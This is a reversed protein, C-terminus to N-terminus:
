CLALVHRWCMFFKETFKLVVGLGGRRHGGDHLPHGLTKVFLHRAVVPCAKIQDIGRIGAVEDDSRKGAAERGLRADGKVGSQATRGGGATLYYDHLIHGFIRAIKRSRGQHLRFDNDGNIPFLLKGGLEIDIAIKSLREDSRFAHKDFGAGVDDGVVQCFLLPLNLL